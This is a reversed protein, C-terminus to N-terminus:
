LKKLDVDYLCSGVNPSTVSVRYELRLHYSSKSKSIIWHYIEMSNKSTNVVQYDASNADGLISAQNKTGLEDAYNYEEFKTYSHLDSGVDSNLDAVYFSDKPAIEVGKITRFGQWDCYKMGVMAVQPTSSPKYSGVFNSFPNALAAASFVMLVTLILNKM